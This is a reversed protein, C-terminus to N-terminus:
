KEGKILAILNRLVEVTELRDLHALWLAKDKLLKIIREQEMEIGNRVGNNHICIQHGTLISQTHNCESM